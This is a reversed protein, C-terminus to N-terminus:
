RYVSRLVELLMELGWGGSGWVSSYLITVATQTDTLQLSARLIGVPPPPHPSPNIILDIFESCPANFGQDVAIEGRGQVDKQTM